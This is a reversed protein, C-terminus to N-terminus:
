HNRKSGSIEIQRMHSPKFLNMRFWRRVNKSMNCGSVSGEVEEEVVEEGMMKGTKEGPRGPLSVVIVNWRLSLWYKEKVDEFRSLPYQLGHPLSTFMTLTHTHTLTTWNLFSLCPYLSHENHGECDTQCDAESTHSGLAVLWEKMDMMSM